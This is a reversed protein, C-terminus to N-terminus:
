GQGEADLRAKENELFITTQNLKCRNMFDTFKSCEFMRKECVLKVICSPCPCENRHKTYYVGIGLHLCGDLKLVHHYYCWDCTDTMHKEQM